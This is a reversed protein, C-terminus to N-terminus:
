YFMEMKKKQKCTYVVFAAGTITMIGIGLLFIGKTGGLGSMGVTFPRANIIKYTHIGDSTERLVAPPMVSASKGAFEIRYDGETDARDPNITIIWQGVPLEYGVAAKTEILTYVGGDLEGLDVLGVPSNLSTFVENASDANEGDKKVRVWQGDTIVNVIATTDVIHDRQAQTPANTGDWRYLAFQANALGENRNTASVKTFATAVGSVEIKHLVYNSLTERTGTISDVTGVHWTSKVQNNLLNNEANESDFEPATCSIDITITANRQFDAYNGSVVYRGERQTVTVGTVTAVGTNHSVTPTGNVVVGKPLVDEFTGSMTGLNDRETRNHLTIRYSFTDGGRLNPNGGTVCLTDNCASERSLSNSQQCTSSHTTAGTSTKQIELNGAMLFNTRMKSIRVNNARDTARIWIDYHGQELGTVDNPNQWVLNSPPTSGAIPASFAIQPPRTPSLGSLEDRVETMEFRFGGIPTITTINPPTKDIKVTKRQTSGNGTSLSVSDNGTETLRTQFSVGIAQTESHYSPIIAPTHANNRTTEGMAVTNDTGELRTTYVGRSEQNASPSLHQLTGEIKLPQNTWGDEGGCANIGSNNYTTESTIAAGDASVAGQAYTTYTPVHGSFRVGVRRTVDLYTENPIHRPVTTNLSDQDRYRLTVTAIGIRNPNILSNTSTSNTTIIGTLDGINHVIPNVLRTSAETSREVVIGARLDNTSTAQELLREPIMSVLVPPLYFDMPAQIRWTTSRVSNTIEIEPPASGPGREAWMQLRRWGAGNAEWSLVMEHYGADRTVLQHSNFGFGFSTPSYFRVTAWENGQAPTSFWRELIYSDGPHRLITAINDTMGRGRYIAIEGGNTIARRLTFTLTPANITGTIEITLFDNLSNRSVTHAQAPNGIMSLMALLLLLVLAGGRWTANKRRKRSQEQM